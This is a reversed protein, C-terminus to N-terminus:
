KAVLSSISLYFESYRWSRIWLMWEQATLNESTAALTTWVRISNMPSALLVAATSTMAKTLDTGKAAVRTSSTHPGMVFRDVVKPVPLDDLPEGVQPRGNHLLQKVGKGVDFAALDESTCKPNHSLVRRADVTIRPGGGRGM